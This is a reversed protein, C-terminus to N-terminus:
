IIVIKQSIDLGCKQIHPTSLNYLDSSVQELDFIKKANKNLSNVDSKKTIIPLKSNNKLEKLLHKGRNNFGLIRIYPPSSYVDERNIGLFAFLIIRRIRSLTYRKTKILSYLEELSTSLRISKFIRNELGESVDCINKLEEKKTKRLKALIATQISYINAPAKQEQINENIIKFVSRPVLESFDENNYILQRVYSASPLYSNIHNEDHSSGIRKIAIPKINSKINNLSKIYEIALINNPSKFIDSLKSNEREETFQRVVNERAKPFSVGNKLEKLIELKINNDCIIEAAKKLLHIEASECGFSLTNVCGLSDAIKVAASAFFEASAISWVVPIEVVLDVGSLLAMKAREHKSIIALDGRQVFNGSMIAIVHTAGHKRTEKIHYAHGNHFPNYESIIASVNM